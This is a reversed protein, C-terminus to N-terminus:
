RYSFSYNLDLANDTGGRAILAVRRSLQYTLKVLTAAGGLSQEFSMFLDPGLRKGLSLVQGSVAPGSAISSGGGVVRSAGVRSVSNLEGQGIAFSDFGLSRSLQETMGGGPGGLLATAAPLLLGLDAGSGAEPARGLVIWSLKEPDPVNPESVLRVRPHRATGSVAIGAEVALGKRLAVINLGPAEIPGQFNVLGKDIVLSQGYGRYTGGVTAISGVAQLPQGPQLRLTLDGALRTALGQASLYLAEGLGVRIAAGLAFASDGAASERGRVVVDDSLTPAPREDFELYGADVRVDAALDVGHWSSRADGAGSVIMWRDERQLLPLREAEFRFQGAGSTLAVEGSLSFRGPTATLADFPVRRETPRVRNPSVFTLRTLQLRDQDFDLDFEGGSLILGPDILALRLERGALTGTAQPAGLTGGLRVVGGVRGATEINERALRGLWTISPMDLRVVGELATSAPLAWRGDPDRSARVVAEGRLSGIESGRGDVTLELRDGGARLVAELQQLGLRAPLEGAVSLDGAERFVRVEGALTEGVAVDWRAGVVLPNANRRPQGDARRTELDILLGALSGRLRTQAASWATEHLRIEGNDGAAIVAEGLRLQGPALVLTAPARLRADFRGATELAALVGRWGGEALLGGQLRLSLATIPLAPDAPSAELSLQHRARTGEATLTARALWIPAAASGAEGLGSLGLALQFPGDAGGDLRVVGNIGDLRVKGPLTLQEGFFQLQGRPAALSGGITGAVGGRGDLGFGLAALAPAALRLQLVDTAAGLAGAAEFRNGAVDLALQLQALREGRLHLDGEGRVPRGEIVSDALRFQLQAAQPLGAAPLDSDLELQFNLRAEPATSVLERPNVAAGDLTAGLRAAGEDWRVRGTVRATGPLSLDLADLAITAGNWDLVGTLAVLPIGGQDVPQPRANRLRVPGQLRGEGPLFVLEAAAVLEAEVVQAPAATHHLRARAVALREIHLRRHLLQAPQWTLAVGELTLEGDDLRYRVRDIALPGLVRGRAGEFQLAEGAFRQALALTVDLGSQTTLLWALGGGAAAFALVLGLLAGLLARVRGMGRRPRLQSQSSPAPPEAM